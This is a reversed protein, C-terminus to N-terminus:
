QWNCLAQELKELFIEIAKIDNDKISDLMIYLNNFIDESFKEHGIFATIGKNTPHFLVERQNDIPRSKTIYEKNLLKKIFKSAASKSVGLHQALQTLNIGPNKSIAVITHIESSYLLDTTGFDRPKKTAINFKNNVRFVLDILKDYNDM